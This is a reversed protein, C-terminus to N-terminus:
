AIMFCQAFEEYIVSPNRLSMKFQPIFYESIIYPDNSTTTKFIFIIKYNEYFRRKKNYM